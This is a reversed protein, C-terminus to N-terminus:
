DNTFTPKTLIIVALQTRFLQIVFWIHLHIKITYGRRVHHLIHSCDVVHPPLNCSQVAHVFSQGSNLYHSTSTNLLRYMCGVMHCKNHLHCWAAYYICTPIVHLWLKSSISSYVVQLVHACQPTENVMSQYKLCIHLCRLSHDAFMECISWCQEVM